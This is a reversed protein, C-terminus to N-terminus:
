EYVADNTYKYRNLEKNYEKLVDNNYFDEEDDSDEKDEINRNEIMYKMIDPNYNPNLISKTFKEKRAPVYYKINFLLQHNVGKFDYLEGKSTEFRISLRSLKGIPHFPKQIVTTYDFRLNTIGGFSSAMKFMGIGPTMSMYAYSSYLHDEIEKIRLIAFREGLLSILGPSVIKYQNISSDFVSGYILYNNGIIWGKYKTPDATPYIDFGLSEYIKSSTNAVNIIMFNNSTFQLKAQRKPDSTTSSVDVTINNLVDNLAGILTVIDYNGIELSLIYSSISIIFSGSTQITTAVTLNIYNKEFYVLDISTNNIYLYFDGTELIDIIPQNILTNRIVYKKGDFNFFYFEEEIQTTKLMIETTTLINRYYAVYDESPNSVSNVYSQLDLETGIITKTNVNKNFIDIFSSCKSIETFYNESNIPTLSSGSKAVTTFYLTNNYKDINYMTVPITSDVVDFGYVLKFPQEFSVVYESPTAYLYKNRQRSDVYIIQSNKEANDQLYEVDEIM